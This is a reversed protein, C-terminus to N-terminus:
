HETRETGRIITGVCAYFAYVSEGHMAMLVQPMVVETMFSGSLIEFGHMCLWRAAWGWEM